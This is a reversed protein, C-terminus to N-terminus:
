TAALADLLARVLTAWQAPEPMEAGLASLVALGLDAGAEGLAIAIAGGAPTEVGIVLGRRGTLDTNSPLM